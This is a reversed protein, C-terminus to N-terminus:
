KKFINFIKKLGKEKSQIEINTLDVLYPNIENNEVLADYLKKIDNLPDNMNNNGKWNLEFIKSIWLEYLYENDIVKNNSVKTKILEVLKELEQARLKYLEQAQKYQREIEKNYLKEPLYAPMMIDACGLKTKLSLEFILADMRGLFKEKTGDPLNEWKYLINYRIHM